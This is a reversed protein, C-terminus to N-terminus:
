ILNSIYRLRLRRLGKTRKSLLRATKQVFVYVFRYDDEAVGRTDFAAAECIRVVEQYKVSADKGLDACLNATFGSPANCDYWGYIECMLSFLYAYLNTTASKRDRLKFSHRRQALVIRRRLLLVLAAVILLLLLIGAIRPWDSPLATEEEEDEDDFDDHFDEEMDLSNEEQPTPESQPQEATEASDSAFLIDAQEMLNLYKPAVEFPVWGLGDQYIECWAHGSQGDLAIIADAEANQATEPTILYGEIYRAPIGFYRMMMVAATAYHVDYGSKTQTLFETLFDSGRVHPAINESYEINEELWSLIKQKASGYALRGGSAMEVEFLGGLLDSIEEPVDLFHDYVFSNYHSEDMLYSELLADPATEAESLWSLLTTYRKVQNPLSVLEYDDEGKIKLSYPQIDGIGDADILVDSASLLEYPAYVYERSAGVHRVAIAIGAESLDENDLLLAAHALQTQGYFGDQHLWYFLDAGDALDTKAMESWGEGTYASGVFGRLYLSEPKDMVVELMTEDTQELDALDTFDGFPLSDAGDFRMKRITSTLHARIEDVHPVSTGNLVLLGGAVCLATVAALCLWAILSGRTHQDSVGALLIGAAALCLYGDGAGIGLSVDLLALIAGVFAAVFVCRNKVLWVCGLALWGSLCCGAYFVGAESASYRALNRGIHGGIVSSVANIMGFLGGRLDAFALGCVMAGVALTGLLLECWRLRRLLFALLIVLFGVAMALSSIPLAFMNTLSGGIGAFLLMASLAATASLPKEHHINMRMQLTNM